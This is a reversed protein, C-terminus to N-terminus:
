LRRALRILWAVAIVNLVLKGIVDIPLARGLAFVLFGAIMSAVVAGFILALRSSDRWGPTSSWRAILAFAVGALIVGIAMPIAVPLNPLVDYALFILAFWPLALMFAALGVLTPAPARRTTQPQSWTLRFPGLAVASLLVIAIFALGISSLPVRYPAQPLSPLYLQTWTFWALFSALAFVVASIVLGRSRLWPEDRREPFILEVLQVPLLVVWISKM